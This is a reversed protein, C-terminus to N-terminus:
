SSTSGRCQVCTKRASHNYISLKGTLDAKSMTKMITTLKNIGMPQNRSWIGKAITCQVYEIGPYFPASSCNMRDPQHAAYAKYARVPCIDPPKLTAYAKPAFSRTNGPESDGHRIKTLRENYVLLEGNEDSQLVVDGWEMQRHENNGRLGFLKTNNYWVTNIMATASDVGLQGAKLLAEEQDKTIPQLKNPLNGFVLICQLMSTSPQPEMAIASKVTPRDESLREPYYFETELHDAYM